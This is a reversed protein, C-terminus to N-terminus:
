CPVSKGFHFFVQHFNPFQSFLHPGTFLFLNWHCIFWSESEPGPILGQDKILTTYDIFKLLNAHASGWDFVTRSTFLLEPLIVLNSLTFFFMFSSSFFFISCIMPSICHGFSKMQKFSLKSRRQWTLFNSGLSCRSHRSFFGECQVKATGKIFRFIQMHWIRICM